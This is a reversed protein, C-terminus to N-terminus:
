LCTILTIFCSTNISVRDKQTHGSTWLGAWCSPDAPLFETEPERCQQRYTSRKGRRVECLRKENCLVLRCQTNNFTPTLTKLQADHGKSIPEEVIRLMLVQGRHSGCSKCGATSNVGDVRIQMNQKEGCRVNVKLM